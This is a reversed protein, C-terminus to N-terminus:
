APALAAAQQELAAAQQEIATVLQPPLALAASLAQLYQRERDCDVEIALLAATYVEAAQAPSRCEACLQGIGLPSRLERMLMQQEEVTLGANDMRGFIREQEDADLTGDAHAAAIMSRLILLGQGGSAASAPEAAAAGAAAAGTTNNLAKVALTAVLALGGLGAASRGARLARRGLRRGTASTALFSAAGGLAAGAALSGVNLGGTAPASENGPGSGPLLQDILRNFNM